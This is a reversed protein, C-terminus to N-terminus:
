ENDDRERRAETKDLANYMNILTNQQENSRKQQENVFNLIDRRNTMGTNIFDNVRSLAKNVGDITVEIPRLDANVNNLNAQSKWLEKQETLRERELLLQKQWQQMEAGIRKIQAQNLKAGSEATIRKIVNAEKAISFDNAIKQTELAIYKSDTLARTDTAYKSAGASITASETRGEKALQASERSVINAEHKLAESARNARRAEDLEAERLDLERKAKARALETQAVQNQTYTM